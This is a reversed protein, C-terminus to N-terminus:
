GEATKCQQLDIRSLMDEYSIPNCTATPARDSAKQGRSRVYTDDQGYFKDSEPNLDSSPVLVVLDPQKLSSKRVDNLYDLMVTPTVIYLKNDSVDVGKEKM